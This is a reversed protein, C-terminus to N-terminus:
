ITDPLLESETDMVYTLLAKIAAIIGKLNEIIISVWEYDWHQRIFDKCQKNMRSRQAVIKFAADADLSYFADMGDIYYQEIISYLEKFQKQDAENLKTRYLLKAIRKVRDAVQEVKVSAVWMSRLRDNDLGMEMAVSPTAQLHKVTRYLMYSLRNVGNDRESLNPYMNCSFSEKSDVIMGRTVNDMKRILDFPDIDEMKLFVRAVIKSSNEEVVEMAMLDQIILRIERVKTQLTDSVLTIEDFNRIYKSILHLRIERYSMKTVDLTVSRSHPAFDKTPLIILRDKVTHLYVRDGKVIGQQVLWSKPLSVVYSSKGFEIIKRQEMKSSFPCISLDFFMDGIYMMYMLM